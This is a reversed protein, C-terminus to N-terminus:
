IVGKPGRESFFFHNIRSLGVIQDELLNKGGLNAPQILLIVLLCSQCKVLKMSKRIRISKSEEEEAM